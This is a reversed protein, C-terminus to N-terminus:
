DGNPHTSPAATLARNAAARIRKTLEASPPVAHADLSDYGARELRCPLCAALHAAIAAPALTLPEGLAQSALKGLSPDICGPKSSSVIPPIDTSTPPTM